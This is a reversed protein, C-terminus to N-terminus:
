GTLKVGKNLASHAWRCSAARSWLSRGSGFWLQLLVQNFGWRKLRKQQTKFGKRVNGAKQRGGEGNETTFEAAAAPLINIQRTKSPKQSFLITLHFASM